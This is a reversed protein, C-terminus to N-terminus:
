KNVKIKVTVTFTGSGLGSITSTIPGDVSWALFDTSAETNRYKTLTTFNGSAASFVTGTSDSITVAVSTDASSFLLVDTIIGAVGPPPSLATGNALTATGDASFTYTLKM